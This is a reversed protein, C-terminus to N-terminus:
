LNEVYAYGIPYNDQNNSLVVKHQNQTPLTWKKSTVPKIKEIYADQKPNSKIMKDFAKRAEKLTETYVVTQKKFIGQKVAYYFSM